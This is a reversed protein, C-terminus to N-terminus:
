EDGDGRTSPDPLIVRDPAFFGTPHDPQREFSELYEADTLGVDQDIFVALWSHLKVNSQRKRCEVTASISSLVRRSIRTSAASAFTGVSASILRTTHRIPCLKDAELVGSNVLPRTTSIAVMPLRDVRKKDDVSRAPKFSSTKMRQGTMTPKHM